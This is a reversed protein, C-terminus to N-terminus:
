GGSDASTRQEQELRDLAEQCHMLSVQRADLPDGDHVVLSCFPMPVYHTVPRRLRIIRRGRFALPVLLAGSAQAIDLLGAKVRGYPGGSDAALALHGGRSSLADAIQTKPRTPSHRGYVWVPFGFWAYARQNARSRWGDHALIAPVAWAPFHRFAAVSLWTYAHWTYYILPRGEAAAREFLRGPPRHWRVAATSLYPLMCAAFACNTLFLLPDLVITDVARPHEPYLHVVRGRDDHHPTDASSDM